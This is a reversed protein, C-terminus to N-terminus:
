FYLSINSFKYMIFYLRQCVICVESISRLYAEFTLYGYSKYPVDTGIENKYDFFLKKVTLGQPSSIILSSILKKVEEPSSM